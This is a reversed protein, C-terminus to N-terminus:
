RSFSTILGRTRAFLSYKRSVELSQRSISSAYCASPSVEIRKWGISDRGERREKKVSGDGGGLSSNEIKVRCTM